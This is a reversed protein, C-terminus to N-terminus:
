PFRCIPSRQTSCKRRKQWICTFTSDQQRFPNRIRNVRMQSNLIAENDLFDTRFFVVFEFTYPSFIRHLTSRVVLGPLCYSFSGHSCPFVATPIRFHATPIVFDASPIHVDATPTLADATSGRWDKFGHLWPSCGCVFMHFCSSLSVRLLLSSSVLLCACVCSSDVHHRLHDRGFCLSSWCM